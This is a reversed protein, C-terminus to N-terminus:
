VCLSPHVLLEPLCRRELTGLHQLFLPVLLLSDELLLDKRNGDLRGRMISSIMKVQVAVGSETKEWGDGDGLTSGGRSRLTDPEWFYWGLNFSLIDLNPKTSNNPIFFPIYNINDDIFILLLLLLLYFDILFLLHPRYFRLSLDDLTPREM